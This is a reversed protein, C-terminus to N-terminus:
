GSFCGVRCCMASCPERGHCRHPLPSGAGRGSMGTGTGTGTGPEPEPEPAEMPDPLGDWLAEPPAVGSVLVQWAWTGALGGDLDPGPGTERIPPVWEERAEADTRRVLVAADGERVVRVEM